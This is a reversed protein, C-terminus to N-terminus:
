KAVLEMKVCIKEETEDDMRVSANNRQAAESDPEGTFTDDKNQENKTDYQTSEVFPGAAAVFEKINV